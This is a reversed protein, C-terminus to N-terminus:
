TIDTIVKIKPCVNPMIYTPVNYIYLIMHELIVVYMCKNILFWVIDLTDVVDM